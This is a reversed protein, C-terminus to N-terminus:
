PLKALDLVYGGTPGPPLDVAIYFTSAANGGNTVPLSHVEDRRWDSRAVEAGDSGYVVLRAHVTFWPLLHMSMTRGAALSVAYVDPRLSFAHGFVRAINGDIRQAAAFSNNPETERLPTRGFNAAAGVAAGADVLGSGCAPCTGRFARATSRLLSELQPATLGANASLMMAAVGAVHPTAMSTGYFNPGGYTDAGPSTTGTNWTSQIPSAADGGPAALSVLPGYNSYPALSGAQDVAAVAIAGSCNAPQFDAMDSAWNGAAAVVVAGRARAAAIAQQYTQSCAGGGGLSLNIVRAPTANLPVGAVPEGSAWLIADAIDSIWGGCTGLVRVPQIRANFAVGAIGQGNNAAAAAIGAVHTGHWSSPVAYSDGCDGVQRYDGPDFADADRGTGDRANLVESIFDYGAVLNPLLDAHPRVGTDLVAIVVGQGEGREWRWANRAHIGANAEFLNWQQNFLPDNPTPGRAPQMLRDPEAYEIRPDGAMMEAAIQRAHTISVRRDFRLVEAGSALERLPQLRAGLRLAADQASRRATAQTQQTSEGAASRHKVILRETTETALPASRAAFSQGQASVMPLALCLGAFGWQWPRRTVLTSKQM